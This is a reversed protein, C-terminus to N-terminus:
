LEIKLFGSELRHRSQPGFLLELLTAAGEDQAFTPSPHFIGAALLMM